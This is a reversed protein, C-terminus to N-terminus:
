PKAEGKIIEVERGSKLEKQGSIILLEGPMLGKKVEVWNGETIGVEIEKVRVRGDEVAYAYTVGTGSPKIVGEKPIAITNFRGLLLKLKAYMGPKLTREPNPIHIEVEATRTNPDVVPQILAVKGVFIRSPYSDVEIEVKQGMRIGPLDTEAVHTIIKLPDVQTIAVLPRQLMYDSMFGEDVYRASIVGSLPAIVTHEQYYVQVEKLRAEAQNIQAQALERAAITTKFETEIADLKQKPVVGKNFLMEIREKDTEINKLREEIQKLNAQAVRIAAKAQGLQAEASDWELFGITQGKKVWDGREVYLKKLIKNPIKPFVQVEQFAKIDGSLSLTRSMQRLSVEIVEVPIKKERNEFNQTSSTSSGQCGGFLLLSIFFLPCVKILIRNKSNFEM